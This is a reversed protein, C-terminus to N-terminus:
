MTMYYGRKEKTSFMQNLTVAKLRVGVKIQFLKTMQM